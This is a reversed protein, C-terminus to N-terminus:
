FELKKREITYKKPIRVILLGNKMGAEIDKNIDIDNLTYPVKITKIEKPMWYYEVPVDTIDIEVTLFNKEKLTGIHIQDKDFGALFAYVIFHTDNESKSVNAVCSAAGTGTYMQYSPESNIHLLESPSQCGLGVNGGSGGIFTLGETNPSANIVINNEM